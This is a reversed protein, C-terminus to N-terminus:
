GNATHRPWSSSARLSETRNTLLRMMWHVDKWQLLHFSIVKGGRMRFWSMLLVACQKVPFCHLCVYSSYTLLCTQQPSAFQNNGSVNSVSHFAESRSGTGGLPWTWHGMLVSLTKLWTQIVMQTFGTLPRCSFVWLSRLDVKNWCILHPKSGSRIPRVKNPSLLTIM